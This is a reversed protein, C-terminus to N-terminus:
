CISHLKLLSKPGTTRSSNHIYVGQSSTLEKLKPSDERFWKRFDQVGITDKVELPLINREKLSGPKFDDVAWVNELGRNNLGWITASGILGAGGTVVSIGKSLDHM